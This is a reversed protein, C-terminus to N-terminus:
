NIANKTSKIIQWAATDRKESFQFKLKIYLAISAYMITWLPHRPLNKILALIKEKLGIVFFRKTIVAGFHSEQISESLLFRSVQKVYDSITKPLSYFIRTDTVYYFKMNHLQSYIYPYVDDASSNPFTIQKYLTKRFARVAGNCLYMDSQPTNKIALEWIELGANAIKQVYGNKEVPQNKGSVLHITKSSIFPAVLRKIEDRSGLVLDADLLVVIDSQAIEFIENLRESKGKREQSIVLKIKNSHFQRIITSTKDSSGDDIIIIKQITFKEQKQLLLDQVLKGIHNEENYASIGITVTLNIM